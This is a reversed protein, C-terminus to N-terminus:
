KMINLSNMKFFFNKNQNEKFNKTKKFKPNM